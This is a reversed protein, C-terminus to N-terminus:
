NAAALKADTWSETYAKFGAREGHSGEWIAIGLRTTGGPTLSVSTNGPDAGLLDRAIVVQWRGGARAAQVSVRDGTPETTGLGHAVVSQGETADARWQWANVPLQKSGMTNIPADAGVPFIVAAGDPFVGNGEGRNETADTWALHIFVAQGNHCAKLQVGPVAGVKRGKFITRTYPTPQTGLPTGKLPLDSAPISSWAAATPDLLEKSDAKSKTILLM